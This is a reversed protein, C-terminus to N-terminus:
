RQWIILLTQLRATCGELMELTQKTQVKRVCMRKCLKLAKTKLVPDFSIDRQLTSLLKKKKKFTKNVLYYKMKCWLIATETFRGHHCNLMHTKRKKWYIYIINSWTFLVTLNLIYLFTMPQSYINSQLIM